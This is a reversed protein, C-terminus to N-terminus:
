EKGQNGYTPKFCPIAAPALPLCGVAVAAGSRVGGVSSQSGLDPFVVLVCWVVLTCFPGEPM